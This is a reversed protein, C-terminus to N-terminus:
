TITELDLVAQIVNRPDARYAVTIVSGAPFYFLENCSLANLLRPECACGVDSSNLGKKEGPVPRLICSSSQTSITHLVADSNIYVTVTPVHHDRGNHFVAVTLRYIAEHDIKIVHPHASNWRIGDGTKLLRETWPIAKSCASTFSGGNWLWRYVSGRHHHRGVAGLAGFTSGSDGGGAAMSSFSNGGGSGPLLFMQSQELRLKLERLASNFDVADVKHQRLMDIDKEAHELRVDKRSQVKHIEKLSDVEQQLEPLAVERLVRIAEAAAFDARATQDRLQQQDETLAQWSRSFARNDSAYREEKVRRDDILTNVAVTLHELKQELRDLRSLTEIATHQSHRSAALVAPQVNRWEFGVGKETEDIATLIRLCETRLALDAPSAHTM